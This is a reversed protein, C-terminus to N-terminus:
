EKREVANPSAEIKRPSRTFGYGCGRLCSRVGHLPCDAMMIFHGDRGRGHGNDLVPCTCGKDLAEDSGPNPVEVQIM